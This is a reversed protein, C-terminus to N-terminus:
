IIFNKGCNICRMASPNNVQGCACKWGPKTNQTYNQQNSNNYSYKNANSYNNANASRTLSYGSTNTSVQTSYLPVSVSVIVVAIWGFVITLLIWNIGSRGKSVAIKYAMVLSLIWVALGVIVFIAGFGLILSFINEILEFTNDM